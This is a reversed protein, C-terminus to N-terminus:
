VAELKKGQNPELEYELEQIQGLLSGIDVQLNEILRENSSLLALAEERYSDNFTQEALKRIRYASAKLLFPIDTVRRNRDEYSYKTTKEM